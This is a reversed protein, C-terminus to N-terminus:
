GTPETPSKTRLRRSANQVSPGIDTWGVPFGMLWEVWDPNLQGGMVEPLQPTHGNDQQGAGSRIDRAAPTQLMRGVATALDDGGSGERNMRAYDPCSPSGKPTPFMAKTLSHLSDLSNRHAGACQADEGRPTPLLRAVGTLHSPDKMGPHEGYIARPTPLMEKKWNHIDTRLSRGQGGGHSGVADGASPTSWLRAVMGLCQIKYRPREVGGGRNLGGNPADPMTNPTPLLGFETADTRPMSPVLRFLLRKRPTVSHRWTLFCKTSRWASSGLCMKVLSGLPGQQKSLVSCRRGSSVTMMRAEESGPWRSRNVPSDAPFLISQGM